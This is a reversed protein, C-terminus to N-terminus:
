VSRRGGNEGVPVQLGSTHRMCDACHGEFILERRLIRFGDEEPPSIESLPGTEEVDQISECKVCFLHHHPEVNADYRTSETVAGVKRVLGVECFRELTKYVTGLSIMSFRKKVERHITEASPHEKTRHLAEYIALRQYTVQLGRGRLTSILGNGDEM